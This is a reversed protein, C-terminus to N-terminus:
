RIVSNTPTGNGPWLILRYKTAIVIIVM